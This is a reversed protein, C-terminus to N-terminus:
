EKPLEVIGLWYRGIEAIVEVLDAFRTPKSIYSNVGLTYSKVIDEETKSTTLVIVPIRRLVPDSKIIQLARLGNVRPMNLDLFILGPMLKGEEFHQGRNYLYDMLESGDEVFDIKNPLNNEALAEKVLMRDDPDDDAMLINIPKLHIRM